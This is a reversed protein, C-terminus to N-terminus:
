QDLNQILAADIDARRLISKGAHDRKFTKADEETKFPILEHGMPGFVDSGAVYWAESAKVAELTYFDTVLRAIIHDAKVKKRYAQPNLSFKMMDKVGDFYLFEGQSLEIRATWKPYEETFMGCVPCKSGKPVQIRAPTPKQALSLYIAVAQYQADKLPTCIEQSVLWAKAEAIPMFPPHETPTCMKEYIKQGMVAIRSRNKHIRANDDALAQISLALTKKYSKVKGGHEECFNKAARKTSFAYQSRTSM